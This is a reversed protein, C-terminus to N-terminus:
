IYPSHTVVPYARTSSHSSSFRYGDDLEVSPAQTGNSFAASLRDAPPFGARLLTSTKDPGSMRQCFEALKVNEAEESGRMTAGLVDLFVRKGAHQVHEPLAEWRANCIFDAIPDLYDKEAVEEEKQQSAALRAVPM